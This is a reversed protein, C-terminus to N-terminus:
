NLNTLRSDTTRMIKRVYGIVDFFKFNAQQKFVIVLPIYYNSKYFHLIYLQIFM